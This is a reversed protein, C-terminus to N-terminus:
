VTPDLLVFPDPDAAMVDDVFTLATRRREPCVNILVTRCVELEDLDLELDEVFDEVFVDVLVALRPTRAGSM